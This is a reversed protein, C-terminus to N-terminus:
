LGFWLTSIFQLISEHFIMIIITNSIHGIYTGLPSSREKTVFFLSIFKYKDYITPTQRKESYM